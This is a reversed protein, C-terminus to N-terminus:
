TEYECLLDMFKILKNISKYEYYAIINKKTSSGMKTQKSPVTKNMLFASLFKIIARKLYHTEPIEIM